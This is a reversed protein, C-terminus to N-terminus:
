DWFDEDDPADWSSQETDNETIEPSQYRKVGRM